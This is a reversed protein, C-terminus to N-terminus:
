ALGARVLDHLHLAGVVRQRDDVVPLVTIQHQELFHLAEAALATAAICRPDTTMLQNIKEDLPNDTAAFIRRLDGDTVIGVLHQDGDTVFACGLAKQGMVPITERLTATHSVLPLRPPGHMLQEVTLLLKRGLYGGPHFIAFQESTFGRRRMLAVALADCVALCVTTSATPAPAEEAVERVGQIGIVVDCLTALRSTPRGCIAIAPLGMRKVHPILSLLEETEGSYTLALFVDGRSVIGLDGHMAESPHLFVAPAGTSCFTAAAKRGIWGMKGMGAIIIKGSSSELVQVAREVHDTVQEAVARIAEAEGNLVEVITKKIDTM